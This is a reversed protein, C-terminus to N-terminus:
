REARRAARQALMQLAAAVASGQQQQQPAGANGLACSGCRLLRCM